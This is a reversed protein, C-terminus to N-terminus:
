QSDRGFLGRGARAVRAMPKTRVRYRISRDSSWEAYPAMTLGALNVLVEDYNVRWGSFDRWAQDRDAKLPVGVEELKQCVEDFEDRAISIPSDPEPDADYPIGFFHAIRRLSLYGRSPM